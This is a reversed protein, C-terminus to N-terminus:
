SKLRKIDRARERLYLHLNDIDPLACDINYSQAYESSLKLYNHWPIREGQYKNVMFKVFNNLKINAGPISLLTKKAISRYENSIRTYRRRKEARQPTVKRKQIKLSKILVMDYREMKDTTNPNEVLFSISMKNNLTM